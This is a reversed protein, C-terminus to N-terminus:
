GAKGASPNPISQNVINQLLKIQGLLMERETKWQKKLEVFAERHIYHSDMKDIFREQEELVKMEEDDKWWYCIPMSLKKSITELTSVTMTHRRMMKQYGTPTMECAEAMEKDTIKKETIVFEIRSYNM